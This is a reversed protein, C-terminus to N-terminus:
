SLGGNDAFKLLIELRAFNDDDRLVGVVLVATVDGDFLTLVDVEVM